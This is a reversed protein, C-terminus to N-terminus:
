WRIRICTWPTLRKVQDCQAALEHLCDRVFLRSISQLGEMIHKWRWKDVDSSPLM